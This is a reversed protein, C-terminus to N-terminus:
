FVDESDAKTEAENFVVVDGVVWSGGGYLDTAKTNVPLGLALGNDHVFMRRGDMARAACLFGGVFEALQRSTPTPIETESGDAKILTAM